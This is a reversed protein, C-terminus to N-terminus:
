EEIIFDARNGGIKEQGIDITIGAERRYWLGKEKLLFEFCDAYQKEKAFRGIENQTRMLLGTITYSLEPFVVKEPSIIRTM